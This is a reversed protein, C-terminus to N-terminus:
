KRGQINNGLASIKYGNFCTSHMLCYWIKRKAPIRPKLVMVANIGSVVINDYRM